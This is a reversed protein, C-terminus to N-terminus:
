LKSWCPGRSAAHSIVAGNDILEERGSEGSELKGVDVGATRTEARVYLLGVM